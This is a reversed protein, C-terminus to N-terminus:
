PSNFSALLTREGLREVKTFWNSRVLEEGTGLRYVLAAMSAHPEKAEWLAVLDDLQWSGTGNIYGQSLIGVRHIVYGRKECQKVFDVLYEENSLM